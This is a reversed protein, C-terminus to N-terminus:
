GAAGFSVVLEVAGRGLSRDGDQLEAVAVGGGIEEGALQAAAQLFGVTVAAAAVDRGPARV